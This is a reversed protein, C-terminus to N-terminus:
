SYKEENKDDEKEAMPGEEGVRVIKINNYLGINAETPASNVARGGVGYPNVSGYCGCKICM